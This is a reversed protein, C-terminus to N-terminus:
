AQVQSRRARQRVKSDSFLAIRAREAAREMQEWEQLISFFGSINEIIERGDERKLKRENRKQWIDFTQDIFDGEETCPAGAALEGCATKCADAAGAAQSRSYRPPKRASPM